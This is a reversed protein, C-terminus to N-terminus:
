ESQLTTLLARVAKQTPLATIDLNSNTADVGYDIAEFRLVDTPRALYYAMTLATSSREIAVAAFRYTSGLALSNFETPSVREGSPARLATAQMVEIATSTAVIPYRRVVILGGSETSTSSVRYRALEGKSPTVAEFGQPLAFVVKATGLTVNPSPCLAFDCSDQAHTVTSGDPCTRTAVPCSLFHTATDAEYRYVFGVGIVALFFITGLIVRRM